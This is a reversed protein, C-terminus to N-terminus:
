CCSVTQGRCARCRADLMGVQFRGPFLTVAEMARRLFGCCTMCLAFYAFRIGAVELEVCHIDGGMMGILADARRYSVFLRGVCGYVCKGGRWRWRMGVM